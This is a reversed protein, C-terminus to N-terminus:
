TAGSPHSKGNYLHFSKLNSTKTLKSLCRDGYHPFLHFVGFSLRLTELELPQAGSLSLYARCLKELLDPEQGIDSDILMFMLYNEDIHFTCAKGLGLKKLGPSNHFVQAIETVLYSDGWYFHYLELSVLNQCGKLPIFCKSPNNVLDLTQGAFLISLHRLTSCSELAYLLVKKRGILTPSFGTEASSDDWRYGRILLM